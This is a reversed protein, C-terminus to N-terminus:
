RPTAPTGFRRWRPTAGPLLQEVNDLLLLMREASVVDILTEELGRGAQEPVGLALAVSSLVLGPDRISALPVWWVGDPFANAAEAVAALALRTKGSGGPGTLTLLRM